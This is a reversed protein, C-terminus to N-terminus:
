PEELGDHARGAGKGAKPRQFPAPSSGPGSEALGRSGRGKALGRSGSPKEAVPANEWDEARAPWPARGTFLPPRLAEPEEARSKPRGAKELRSRVRRMKGAGEGASRGAEAESRGPGGQGTELAARNGLRARLRRPGTAVSSLSHGV